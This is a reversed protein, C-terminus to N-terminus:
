KLQLETVESGIARLLRRAYSRRPLRDTMEEWTGLKIWAITRQYAHEQDGLDTPWGDWLMGSLWAHAVGELFLLNGPESDAAPAPLVPSIAAWQRDSLLREHHLKPQVQREAWQMYELKEVSGAAALDKQYSSKVHRSVSLDVNEKSQEDTLTSFATSLSTSDSLVTAHYWTPPTPLADIEQDDAEQEAPSRYAFAIKIDANALLREVLAQQEPSPNSPHYKM